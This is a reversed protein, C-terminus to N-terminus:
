TASDPSGTIVGGTSIAVGFLCCDYGVVYTREFIRKETNIERDLSQIRDGIFRGASRYLFVPGTGYVWQVDDTVTGDPASGTYASSALVKHGMPTYYTGDRLELLHNAKFHALLETPVHIVGVGKVCTSLAQELKGLAEVVDLNGTGTPGVNAAALQLTILQDDLVEADASLHPFALDAIDNVTGTWFVSEVEFEESETFTSRVIEDANDWFGPPSCDIEVLVTFPTAGWDSREATAEKPSPEGTVAPFTNSISCLDYTTHGDPCVNQWTVGQKWHPNIRGTGDTPEPRIEAVSFLGYGLMDKVPAAVNLRSNIAM